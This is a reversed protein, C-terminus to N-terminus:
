AIEVIDTRQCSRGTLVVHIPIYHFSVEFDICSLRLLDNRHNLVLTLITICSFSNFNRSISNNFPSAAVRAVPSMVHCTIDGDPVHNGEHNDEKHDGKEPFLLCRILVISLKFVIVPYGDKM